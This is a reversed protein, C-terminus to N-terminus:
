SPEALDRDYLHCAVRASGPAGEDTLVPEVHDRFRVRVGTPGPEMQAVGRWLPEDPDSKRHRDLLTAVDRGSHGPAAPVDVDLSPVSLGSLDGLVDREKRFEDPGLAAWRM